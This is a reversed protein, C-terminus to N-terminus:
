IRAVEQLAKELESEFIDGLANEEHRATIEFFPRAQMRGTGEHVFISYEAMSVIEARLPTITPFIHNWMYGTNIPAKWMDTGAKINEKTKGLFLVSSKEIGIQLHRAIVRPFESLGKQFEELNKIRIKIEM